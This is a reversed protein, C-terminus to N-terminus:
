EGEGLNAPKYIGLAEDAADEFASRNLPEPLPLCDNGSDVGINYDRRKTLWFSEHIKIWRSKTKIEHVLSLPVWVEVLQNENDCFEFLRAKDTKAVLRVYSVKINRSVAGRTRGSYSDDGGMAYYEEGLLNDILMDSMEGM